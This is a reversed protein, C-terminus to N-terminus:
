RWDDDYMNERRLAELPVIPDGASMRVLKELAALREEPTFDRPDKGSRATAEPSHIDIILPQNVPLDVPEEPVIVKGDFHAHISVSDSM